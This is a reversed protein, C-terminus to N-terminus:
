MTQTQCARGSCSILNCCRLPCVAGSPQMDIIDIIDQLCCRAHLGGVRMFRVQAYIIKRDVECKEWLAEAEAQLGRFVAQWSAHGEAVGSCEALENVAHRAAVSATGATAEAGMLARTMCARARAQALAAYLATFKRCWV